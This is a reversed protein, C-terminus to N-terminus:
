VTFSIASYFVKAYNAVLLDKDRGNIIRRAGVWNDKTSSFYDSFKKGTFSGHLMGFFMIKVTLDADLAMEPKKILDINFQEGMMRYNREWTLQVLGRGYFPSYRLSKQFRKVKAANGLYYGEEVATMAQNTEHFTTGLSYALWRSDREAYNKEWEDLIAAMGTTQSASLKGGFLRLRVQDFFFKRNIKQAM